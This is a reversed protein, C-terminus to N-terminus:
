RYIGQISGGDNSDEIFTGINDELIIYWYLIIYYVLIIKREKTGVLSFRNRRGGRNYVIKRKRIEM